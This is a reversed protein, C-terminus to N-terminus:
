PAEPTNVESASKKGPILAEFLFLLGPDPPCWRPNLGNKLCFYDAVIDGQQEYNFDELTYGQAVASRLGAEGGYDYGEPTRQAWLARPIYVAGERQYQWIHVMEHIFHADSLPGWSNIMNFGVYAFRFRRCGIFAREDIRVRAYDIRDGFVARALAKERNNLRRTNPKVISHLLILADPVWLADLLLLLYELAQWAFARTGGSGYAQVAPSRSWLRNWRSSM